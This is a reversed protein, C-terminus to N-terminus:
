PLVKVVSAKIDALAKGAIDAGHRAVDRDRRANDREIQMKHLNSATVDRQRIIEAISECTLKESRVARDREHELTTMRDRALFM